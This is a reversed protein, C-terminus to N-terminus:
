WQERLADLREREARTMLLRAPAIQLAVLVTIYESAGRKSM